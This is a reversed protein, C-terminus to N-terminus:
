SQGGCEVVVFVARRNCPGIGKQEPSRLFRISVGWNKLLLVNNKKWEKRSERFM